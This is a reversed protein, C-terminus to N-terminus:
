IQRRMATNAITHMTIALYKKDRNKLKTGRVKYFAESIVKRRLFRMVRIMQIKMFNHILGMSVSYRSLINYDPNIYKDRISPRLNKFSTNVSAKAPTNFSFDPNFNFSAKTTVAYDM